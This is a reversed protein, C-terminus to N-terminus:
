VEKSLEKARKLAAKVAEELNGGRHLVESASATTGGKSAIQEFLERPSLHTVELLARSGEATNKALIKAQESTFGIREASACLSPIFSDEEFKMLEIKNNPNIKQIQILDYYYGPGSGSIATAKDMMDENLILIQGLNDFVQKTFNLDKETAFKGKCLCIMGKGIRAPLNPMVRIVRVKGLCEEIYSATIGAAISIILRENVLDKIENLVADFDQPKVALIVTDVKNVLDGNNDAVNISLLHKIKNKDKDFAMIQYDLKLQEAIASGMNGFGIIGVTRKM